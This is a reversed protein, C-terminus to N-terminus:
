KLNIATDRIWNESVKSLSLCLYIVKSYRSIRQYFIFEHKISTTRPQTRTNKNLKTMLKFTCKDKCLVTSEVIERLSLPGELLRTAKLDARWSIIPPNVKWKNNETRKWEAFSSCDLSTRARTGDRLCTHATTSPKCTSELYSLSSCPFHYRVPHTFSLIASPRVPHPSPSPPTSSFLCPSILLSLLCAPSPCWVLKNGRENRERHARKSFHRVLICFM